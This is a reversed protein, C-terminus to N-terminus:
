DAAPKAGEERSEKQYNEDGEKPEDASPNTTTDNVTPEGSERDEKPFDKGEEAENNSPDATEDNVTPEGSERADKPYNEGSGDSTQATQTTASQEATASQDTDIKPTDSLALAPAAFAMSAAVALTSVTFKKLM